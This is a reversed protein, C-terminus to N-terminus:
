DMRVGGDVNLTQGTVYNSMQSSLFLAAQAVDDPQGLRAIPQGEVGYDYGNTMVTEIAGPCIANVQIGYRGGDKAVWKTFAIVAGKASAYAPGSRGTSAGAERSVAGGAKGSISAINVIKGGGQAKMVEYAAQTFLVTGNLIVDLERRLTQDDLDELSTREIVGANNVLIDLRGFEAVALAVADAVQSRVTVDAQIAYATGGAGRIAEVADEPAELDALVVSAGATALAAAIARGIGRGAGTVIAVRNRLDIHASAGDTLPRQKEVHGPSGQATM